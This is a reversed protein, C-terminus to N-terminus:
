EVFSQLKGLNEPVPQEGMWGFQDWFFSRWIDSGYGRCEAFLFDPHLTDPLECVPSEFAEGEPMSPVEGERSNLRNPTPVCDEYWNGNGDPLRCVSQDEVKAIAYTYSDYIKGSSNLLRVTDGGDSLLINTQLGYFIVIQGPKLIVSPLTFPNSGLGAEDDLRWGGLDVDVVGINKIEIFEDFVDVKGDQNWDFGPRPLFENIVPRGVPPIATPPPFTATPTAPIGNSNVKKPTGYILGGNEDRGNKPNGANTVWTEDTETTVGQREMSGRNGTVSGWPWGGGNGNATDIFNGAADRLVLTDGSDSLAGTYIQNAATDSITSNDDRELLFYGGSSISGSLTINISGSSSKLTWNTINITASSPNYLEIWEDDASVATGGWAVENIIIALYSTVTVSADDDESTSNNAPKSDPDDQDSAWVEASNTYLGYVSVRATIRLTKSEGRNLTGVAWIGTTKNYATGQDNNVYTLGSPLLAKVQVGTTNALGANAVTITFIINDGVDPNTYDVSQTLSLDASPAGADDDETCTAITGSCNGPLSDPDVQSVVSVQAWNVALSVITTTVTLTASSNKLLTSITWDGTASNYNFAPGSSNSHSVYIYNATSALTSNKVLVGAVDPGANNVTITFVANSGAIDVTQSVSLDAVLVEQSTEDDEGQEGNGPTSDPDFQDSQWVEAFNKTGDGDAAVKVTITLTSTAGPALTGVSWIGTSSNYTMGTTHSVYDLGSPLLDRVQVRTATNILDQNTITIKLDARGATITSRDWTQSLSLDAQTSSIPSVTAVATNNAFENSSVEASFNKNGSSTIKATVSLTVSDGSNLSGINWIGSVNNYTGSTSSHSVYALGSPLLADVQVGTAGGANLNNVEITFVVNSGVSPNPNNVTNTIDLIPTGLLYVNKYDDDDEVTSNNGPTSDPDLQNFSLIEARNTKIGITDVTATIDLSVTSGSTLTPIVWIGTAPTYAGSGTDSQYTLGAASLSDMVMINTASFQANNFVSITFVVTNGGLIISSDDVTMSLSLDISSKGPTGNISAGNADLGNRTVGDNAIWASASDPVVGIREMSAYTVPGTGATGADWGGGSTNATDIVNSLNDRLTLVEGTNNLNPNCSTPIIQDAAIDSITTNDTCEILYYGNAPITGTLSISPTSDGSILTWGTLVIDTGTSNYLEIWEDTTSAATGGWAVESIIVDMAATQRMPAANVTEGELAPMFVGVLLAVLLTIYFVARPFKKWTKM